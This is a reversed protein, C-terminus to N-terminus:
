DTHFATYGSEEPKDLKIGLTKEAMNEISYEYTKGNHRDFCQFRELSPIREVLEKGFTETLYRIDEPEHQNFSIVRNAQSRIDIPVSMFRQAICLISCQRHRGLFILRRLWAELNRQGKEFITSTEELVLLNHGLAFAAGGLESIRDPEFIGVRFPELAQQKKGQNKDPGYLFRDNDLNEIVSPFCLEGHEGDAESFNVAPFSMAPDYVLLRNVHYSYIKSWLSKGWGTMGGVIIVERNM